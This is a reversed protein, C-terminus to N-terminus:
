LEKEMYKHPIGADDFEDSSVHYGLKEYFNLAHVQAGLKARTYGNEEAHIHVFNMLTHGLHLGRAIKRVAMREVKILGDGMDRYRVTGLPRDDLTLLINVSEKEYDDVELELPVNQEEVFVEKRIELCQNYYKPDDTIKLEM